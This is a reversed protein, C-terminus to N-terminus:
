GVQLVLPSSIAPLNLVTRCLVVCANLDVPLASRRPASSCFTGHFFKQYIHPDDPEVAQRASRSISQYRGVPKLLLGFFSPFLFRSFLRYTQLPLVSFLPLSHIISLFHGFHLSPLNRSHIVVYELSGSVVQRITNQSVQLYSFFSFTSFHFV